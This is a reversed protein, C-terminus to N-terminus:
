RVVVWAGYLIAASLGFAIVFMTLFPFAVVKGVTDIVQSLLGRGTEVLRQASQLWAAVQEPTEPPPASEAALGRAEIAAALRTDVLAFFRETIKAALGGLLPVRRELTRIVAPLLIVANVGQFIELLSPFGAGGAGLRRRATGIDQMVQVSLDASIAFVRDMDNRIRRVFLVLGLLVGNVIALPMGPFALFARFYGNDVVFMAVVIGCLFLGATRSISRAFFLPFTVANAVTDMLEENRYRSFDVGTRRLMEDNVAQVRDANM